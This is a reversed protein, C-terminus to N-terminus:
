ISLYCGGALLCNHRYNCLCYCWYASCFTILIHSISFRTSFISLHNKEWSAGSLLTRSEQGEGAGETWLIFCFSNRQEDGQGFDQLHFHQNSRRVVVEQWNPSSSFINTNPSSYTQWFRGALMAFLKWLAMWLFQPRRSSILTVYWSLITCDWYFMLGSIVLGLALLFLMVSSSIWLLATGVQGWM